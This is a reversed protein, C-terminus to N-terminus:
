GRKEKERRRSTLKQTFDVTFTSILYLIVLLLTIVVPKYHLVKVNLGDSLIFNVTIFLILTLMVKITINKYIGRKEMTLGRTEDIKIGVM